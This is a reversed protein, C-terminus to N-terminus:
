SHRNYRTCKHPQEVHNLVTLPLVVSKWCMYQVTHHLYLVHKCETSWTVLLQTLRCLDDCMQTLVQDKPIHRWFTNGYTRCSQWKSIVLIKEMLFISNQIHEELTRTRDTSELYQQRTNEKLQLHLANTAYLVLPKTLSIYIAMTNNNSDQNIVNYVTLIKHHQYCDQKGPWTSTTSM